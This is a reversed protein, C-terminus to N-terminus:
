MAENPWNRWSYPPMMRFEYDHHRLLFRAALNTQAEGQFRRPRPYYYYLHIRSRGTSISKTVAGILEFLKMSSSLNGASDAYYCAGPPDVRSHKGM